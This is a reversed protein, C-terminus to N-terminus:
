YGEHWYLIRKEERDYVASIKTKIKGVNGGAEILFNDSKFIFSGKLNNLLNEQASGAGLDAIVIDEVKRFCGAKDRSAIIKDALAAASNKQEDGIATGRAAIVLAEKCVTNINIKQQPGASYVTILDKINGFAELATQAYDTLGKSHYFYELVVLLEEINSFPAKKFNQYQPNDPELEPANDGRWIRIFKILEDAYAPSGELLSSLLNSPATNINIKSEEDIAGFIDNHSVVAYEDKNQSLRIERFAGENDAWNDTLCDYDTTKDNVIEFIARNIGARALYLGTLRDKHYRSLRLGLSVRHGLSVALVGLIVLIWITFVSAQAKRCIFPARSIM